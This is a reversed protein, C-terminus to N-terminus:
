APVLPITHSIEKNTGHLIGHKAPYPTSKFPSITSSVSLSLLLFTALM